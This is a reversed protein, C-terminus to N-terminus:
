PLLRPDILSAWPTSLMVFHHRDELGTEREHYRSALRLLGRPPYRGGESGAEFLVSFVAVSLMQMPM